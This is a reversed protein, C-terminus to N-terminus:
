DTPEDLAFTGQGSAVQLAYEYSKKNIQACLSKEDAESFSVNPYGAAQLLAQRSIM